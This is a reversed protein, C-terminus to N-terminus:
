TARDHEGLVRYAALLDRGIEEWRWRGAGYAAAAQGMRELRPRDELAAVLRDALEVENGPAVLEGTVGPTVHDPHEGVSTAVVTRASDFAYRLVGSTGIEHYPLVIVDAARYYDNAVAPSVQRFETTIGLESPALPLRELLADVNTRKFPRGAILLRAHPLRQRVRPWAGLLVELGKSERISGFFLAVPVDPPLDLRARAESQLLNPTTVHGYGGLPVVRIRSDAVHFREVLQTRRADDHVVILDMLRYLARFVARHYSRSSWPLLEHATYAQRVRLARIVFATFLDVVPLETYQWHLLDPRGVAVAVMLRGSAIVYAVGRRFRHGDGSTGRFLDLHHVPGPDIMWRDSGVLLAVAGAKELALVQGLDTYVMGSYSVPDVVWVIPRARM